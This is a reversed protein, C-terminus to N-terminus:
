LKYRDAMPRVAMHEAKTGTHTEQAKVYDTPSKSPPDARRLAAVYAFFLRVCIDM